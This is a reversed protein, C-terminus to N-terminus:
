RNLRITEQLREFYPRIKEWTKRKDSFGLEVGNESSFIRLVFPEPARYMEVWLDYPVICRLRNQRERKGVTCYIPEVGFGWAGRAIEFCVSDAEFAWGTTVTMLVTVSDRSDLYTYDYSLSGAVERPKAECCAMERPLVFYLTGEDHKAQRYFNKMTQASAGVCSLLSFLVFLRKM